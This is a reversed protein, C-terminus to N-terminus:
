TASFLLSLKISNQSQSVTFMIDDISGNIYKMVNEQVVKDVDSFEINDRTILTPIKKFFSEIDSERIKETASFYM